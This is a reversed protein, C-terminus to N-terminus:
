RHNVRHAYQNGDLHLLFVSMITGQYSSFMIKKAPSLDERGRKGRMFSVTAEIQQSFVSWSGCLCGQGDALLLRWPVPLWNPSTAPMPESGDGGWRLPLTRAWTTQGGSLAGIRTSKESKAGFFNRPSNRTGLRGTITEPNSWGTSVKRTGTFAQPGSFVTKGRPLNVTKQLCAEFCTYLFQSCSSASPNGYVHAAVSKDTFPVRGGGSNPHHDTEGLGGGSAKKPGPPLPDLGM